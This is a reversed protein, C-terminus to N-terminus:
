QDGFEVRVVPAGGGRSGRQGRDGCPGVDQGNVRPEVRHSSWAQHDGEVVRLAVGLTAERAIGRRVVQDHVLLVDLRDQVRQPARAGEAGRHTPFM